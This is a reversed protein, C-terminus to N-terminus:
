SLKLLCLGEMAEVGVKQLNMEINNECRRRLRGFPRRGEPNEVLVRYECKREGM